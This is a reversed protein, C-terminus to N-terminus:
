SIQTVTETGGTNQDKIVDIASSWFWDLGLGGTLTSV